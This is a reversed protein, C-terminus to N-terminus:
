PDCPRPLSASRGRGHQRRAYPKLVPSNPCSDARTPILADRPHRARRRSGRGWLIMRPHRTQRNADVLSSLAQDSQTAQAVPARTSMAQARSHSSVFRVAVSRWPSGCMGGFTKSPLVIATTRGAPEVVAERGRPRAEGDLDVIDRAWVVLRRGDRSGRPGDQLPSRPRDAESSSGSRSRRWRDRGCAPRARRSDRRRRAARARGRSGRSPSRGCRSRRRPSRWRAAAVLAVGAQRRARRSVDSSAAMACAACSVSTASKGDCAALKSAREGLVECRIRSPARLRVPMASPRRAAAAIRASRAM